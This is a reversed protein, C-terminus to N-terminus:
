PEDRRGKTARAPFLQPLVAGAIIATGLVVLPDHALEAVGVYVLFMLPGLVLQSRALTDRLLQFALAVAFGAAVGAVDRLPAAATPSGSVADYLRALAITIVVSPLMLGVSGAVMGRVGCAKRGILLVQALITIGPTLRSLVVTDLFEDETLWGQRLALRRMSVITASGGGFSTAGIRAFGLFVALWAHGPLHSAWPRRALSGAV